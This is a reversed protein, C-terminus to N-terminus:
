LIAVNQLYYNVNQTKLLKVGQGLAYYFETTRIADSPCNFDILLSLNAPDTTCLQGQLNSPTKIAAFYCCCRLARRGALLRRCAPLLLLTPGPQAAHEGILRALRRRAIRIQLTVNLLRAELRVRGVEITRRHLLHGLHLGGGQGTTLLATSNPSEVKSRTGM